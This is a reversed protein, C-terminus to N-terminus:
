QGLVEMDKTRAEAITSQVLAGPTAIPARGNANISNLVVSAGDLVVSSNDEIMAPSTM